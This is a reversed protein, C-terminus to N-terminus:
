TRLAAPKIHRIPDGDDRVRDRLREVFAHTMVSLVWAAVMILPLSLVWLIPGFGTGPLLLTVLFGILWHVLFVPYSLDGLAKDLGAQRRMALIGTLWCLAAANLYYGLGYPDGPLFPAFALNAVVVLVLGWVVRRDGSFRDSHFQVLAGASFFLVAAHWPYYRAGWDAVNLILYAHWLASVAFALWAITRHRAILAWLLFYNVLEVAVSWTPPVLRFQWVGFAFPFIFLNGLYDVVGPSGSWANHYAGARDPWISLVILTVAAVVFFVPYIRLARNIWFPLPRARYTTQLVRTILCGSVIYFGAVAYIGVHIVGTQWLHSVTVLIALFLRLAGM